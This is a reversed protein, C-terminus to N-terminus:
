YYNKEFNKYTVLEGLCCTTQQTSNYAWNWDSAVLYGYLGLVDVIAARAEGAEVLLVTFNEQESLRNALIGGATGGGVIIFDFTGYDGRIIKLQIKFSSQGVLSVSQPHMRLRFTTMITLPGFM